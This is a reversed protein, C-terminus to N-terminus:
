ERISHPDAGDIPDRTNPRNDTLDREAQYVDLLLLFHHQVAVM